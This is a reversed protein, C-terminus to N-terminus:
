MRRLAPLTRDGILVPRDPDMAHEFTIAAVLNKILGYERRLVTLELEAMKRLTAPAPPWAYKPAAEIDAPCGGRCWRKIALDISWAPLDDIAEAYLDVAAISQVENRQAAGALGDIVKTILVAKAEQGDYTKRDLEFPSQPDLATTLTSLLTTAAARVSQPMKWGQPLHHRIGQGPYQVTGVAGALVVLQRRQSQAQDTRVAVATGKKAM